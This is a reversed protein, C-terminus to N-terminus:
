GWAELAVSYKLLDPFTHRLLVMYMDGGESRERIEELRAINVIVIASLHARVELLAAGARVNLAREDKWYNLM